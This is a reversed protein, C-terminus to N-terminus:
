YLIANFEVQNSLRVNDEYDNFVHSTVVANYYTCYNKILQKYRRHSVKLKKVESLDQAGAPTTITVWLLHGTVKAYEM